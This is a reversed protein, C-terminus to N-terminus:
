ILYVIFSVRELSKRAEFSGDDDHYHYPKQPVDDFDENEIDDFDGNDHALLLETFSVAFILLCCWLKMIWGRFCDVCELVFAIFYICSVSVEYSLEVNTKVYYHAM